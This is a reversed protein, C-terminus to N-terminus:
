ILTHGDTPGDTRTRGDTRRYRMIKKPRSPAVLATYVAKNIIAHRVSLSFSGRTSISPIMSFAKYAAQLM